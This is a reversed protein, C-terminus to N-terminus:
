QDHVVYTLPFFRAKHFPEHLNAMLEVDAARSAKNNYVPFSEILFSREFFSDHLQPSNEFLLFLSYVHLTNQRDQKLRCSDDFLLTLLSYEIYIRNSGM